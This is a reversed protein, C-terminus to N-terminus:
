LARSPGIHAYIYAGLFAYKLLDSDTQPLMNPNRLLYDKCELELLLLRRQDSLKGQELDTKYISLLLMLKDTKNIEGINLKQEQSISLSENKALESHANSMIALMLGKSTEHDFKSFNDKDGIICIWM